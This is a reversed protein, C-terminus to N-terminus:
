DQIVKLAEQIVAMPMNGNYNKDTRQKLLENILRAREQNIPSHCTPQGTCM